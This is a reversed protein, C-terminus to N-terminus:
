RASIASIVDIHTRGTRAERSETSKL